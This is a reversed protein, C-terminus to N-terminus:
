TTLLWFIFDAIPFGNGKDALSPNIRVNREKLLNYLLRHRVSGILHYLDFLCMSIKVCDLRIFSLNEFFVSMKVHYSIMEIDKEILIHIVTM